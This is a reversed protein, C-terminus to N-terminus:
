HIELEYEMRAQIGSQNMVTKLQKYYKYNEGLEGKILSAKAEGTLQTMVKTFPDEQEPLSVTRYKEIGAKNAAIEIATELGGLVDVLGIRKADVGSWVRGQGIEDVMEKTIGRGEAVRSIFVDYVQEVSKQIISREFATLPRYFAGLDAHTNTKVTDINVGLKNNLFNKGNFMVGFVGISGTITNPSAVITDAMCAIYYGGSAAYNGMSVIFPKAQKALHAERWMVESALASGGPSNVRLVIAKVNEDLRADRIAKSIRESGITENDGEGGEISGVAYIVAIKDKTIELKSNGSSKGYKKLPVFNIKKISEASSKEKLIELIEDRYALQDVLKYTVADEAKQILFEDAIRNLEDVTTSRSKAIGNLTHNWISGIFTTTQERNSESMENLMFPEVASKFKGHRIIQPEIELKDLANKFFVVQAGLGKFDIAGQPNMYIKDAISALYYASQTYYESYALIYKGSEKFDILKNRIEEIIATGGQITGADIFIGTINDDTKAKEISELIENLGLKPQSSFSAIEFDELPNKSGRDILEEEFKLHLISNAEVKVKDDGASAVIAAVGGILIIFALFLSLFVGLMSAFMFKFFQKM